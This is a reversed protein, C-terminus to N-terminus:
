MAKVAPRRARTRGSLEALPTALQHHDDSGIDAADGIPADEENWEIGLTKHQARCFACLRTHSNTSLCVACPQHRELAAGCTNCVARGMARVRPIIAGSDTARRAGRGGVSFGPRM